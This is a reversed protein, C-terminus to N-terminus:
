LRRHSALRDVLNRESPGSPRWEEELESRLEEYDSMREGPLILERSYAGHKRANASRGKGTAM